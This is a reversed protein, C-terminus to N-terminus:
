PGFPKAVFPVDIPAPVEGSMMLIKMDPRQPAIERKLALGDMVPMRVDSLLLHIPGPYRESISLAEKGNGATLVFYGDMELVIRAVNRVMVDDEALLVVSQDRHIPRLHEPDHMFAGTATWSGLGTAAIM